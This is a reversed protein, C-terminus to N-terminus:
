EEGYTYDDFYEISETEASYEENVEIVPIVSGIASVFDDLNQCMDDVADLADQVDDDTEIEVVIQHRMKATEEVEIIHKM